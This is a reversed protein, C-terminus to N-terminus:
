DSTKQRTERTAKTIELEMDLERLEFYAEAVDGVLTVLVARRGEESGVYEALAAEEGRRIRGWLDLEWSAGIAARFDSQARPGAGQLFRSARARSADLTADGQPYRDARAVGASARAEEVRAMAIALDHSSGVAERLLGELAADRFVSWWPLDAVSPGSPASPADRFAAPASVGPRCYEPGALRCGTLALAGCALLRVPRRIRELARGM